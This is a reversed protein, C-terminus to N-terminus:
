QRDLRRFRAGYEEHPNSWSFFLSRSQSAIETTVILAGDKEFALTNNIVQIGTVAEGRGERARQITIKDGDCRVKDGPFWAVKRSVVGLSGRAILELTDSQKLEVEAVKEKEPVSLDLGLMIDLALGISRIRFYPPMGPLAEGYLAYMGSLNPCAVRSLEDVVASKNPSLTTPECGVLLIASFFLIPVSGLFARGWKLNSCTSFTRAQRIPHHALSSSDKPM